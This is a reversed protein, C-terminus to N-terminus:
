KMLDNVSNCPFNEKLADQVLKSASENWRQPSKALWNKVVATLQSVTVGGPFCVWHEKLMGFTKEVLEGKQQQTTSPDSMIRTMIWDMSYAREDAIATIYGSAKGAAFFNNEPQSLLNNLDNGTEWGGAFANAQITLLLILLTNKMDTGKGLSGQGKLEM